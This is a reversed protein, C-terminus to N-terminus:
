SDNTEMQEREEKIERKIKPQDSNFQKSTEDATHVIKDGSAKNRDSLGKLYDEILGNLRKELSEIRCDLENIRNLQSCSEFYPFRGLLPLNTPDMVIAHNETM